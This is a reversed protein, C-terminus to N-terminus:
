LVFGRRHSIEGENAAAFNWRRCQSPQGLNFPNKRAGRAVDDYNSAFRGRRCRAVAFHTVGCLALFGLRIVVVSGAILVSPTSAKKFVWPPGAPSNMRKVFSAFNARRSPSSTGTPVFSITTNGSVWCPQILNLPGPCGGVRCM